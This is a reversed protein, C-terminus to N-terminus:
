KVFELIKNHVFEYDNPIQVVDEGFIAPPVKASLGEGCLRFFYEPKDNKFKNDAYLVITFEKELVGEWEKGKVKARKESDGEINLTETHGTIFVEKEAEKVLKMLKAIEKNYNSWIEYGSYKNRVEDLIMDFVASISDLLVLTIEPNNVFDQFAAIVGAYKKPKAHYKFNRKFPFPKLEANIFGTTTENLNRAAFTKGRGTPSIILVKYFDRKPQIESM